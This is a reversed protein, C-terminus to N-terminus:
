NTGFLMTPLPYHTIPMTSCLLQYFYLGILDFLVTPIPLPYHFPIHFSASNDTSNNQQFVSVPCFEWFVSQLASTSLFLLFSVLSYTIITRTTKSRPLPCHANSGEYIELLHCHHYLMLQCQSPTAAIPLPPPAGCLLHPELHSGRM